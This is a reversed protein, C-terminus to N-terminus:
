GMVARALSYLDNLIETAITAFVLLVAVILGGLVFMTRWIARRLRLEIAWTLLFRWTLTNM